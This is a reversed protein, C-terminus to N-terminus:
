VKEKGVHLDGHDWFLECPVSVLKDIFRLRNVVLLKMYYFQKEQM